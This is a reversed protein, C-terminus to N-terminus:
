QHLASMSLKPFSSISLQTISVYLLKWTIRYCITNTVLLVVFETRPSMCVKIKAQTHHFVIMNGWEKKFGRLNKLFLVWGSSLMWLMVESARLTVSFHSCSCLFPPYCVPRLAVCDLLTSSLNHMLHLPPLWCGWWRLRQANRTRETHVSDGGPHVGKGAGHGISSRTFDGGQRLSAVCSSLWGNVVMTGWQFCVPPVLKWDM